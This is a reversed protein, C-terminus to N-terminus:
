NEKHPRVDIYYAPTGSAAPAPAPPSVKLSAVAKALADLKANVEGLNTPQCNCRPQEKIAVLISQEVKLQQALADKIAQEHQKLAQPDITPSPPNQTVPTAPTAPQVPPLPKQPRVEYKPEPQPASQPPRSQPPDSRPPQYVPPGYIPCCGGPGCAVPPGCQAPVAGWGAAERVYQEETVWQAQASAAIVLIECIAYIAKM